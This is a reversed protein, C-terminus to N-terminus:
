LSRFTQELRRLLPESDLTEGRFAIYRDPRILYLPFRDSRYHSRLRGGPDDADGVIVPRIDDGFRFQIKECLATVEEGGSFLLL